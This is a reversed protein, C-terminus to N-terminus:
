GGLATRDATTYDTAAKRCFADFKLMSDALNQLATLSQRLAEEYNSTAKPDGLAPGVGSASSKLTGMLQLVRQQAAVFAPSAGQLSSPDVYTM